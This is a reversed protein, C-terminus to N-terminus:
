VDVISQIVVLFFFFVVFVPTAYINRSRKEQNKKVIFFVKFFISFDTGWHFCSYSSFIQYRGFSEILYKFPTVKKRTLLFNNVRLLFFLFYVDYHFWYM